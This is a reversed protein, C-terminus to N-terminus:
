QDPNIKVPNYLEKVIRAIEAIAIDVKNRTEIGWEDYESQLNEFVQFMKDVVEESSNSKGSAFQQEIFKEQESKLQIAM